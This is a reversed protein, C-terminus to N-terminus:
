LSLVDVVQYVFESWEIEAKYKKLIFLDLIFKDGLLGSIHSPFLELIKSHLVNLSCVIRSKLVADVQRLIVTTKM